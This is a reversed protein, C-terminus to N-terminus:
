VPSLMCVYLARVYLSSSFATTEALEPMISAPRPYM